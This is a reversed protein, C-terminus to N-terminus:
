RRIELRFFRRENNTRNANSVRHSMGHFSPCIAQVCSIETKRRVLRLRITDNLKGVTSHHIRCRITERRVSVSRDIRKQLVLLKTLLIRSRTWKDFDKEVTERRIVILQEVASLSDASNKDDICFFRDHFKVREFRNHVRLIPSKIKQHCRNLLKSQKLQDLIARFGVSLNTLRQKESQLEFSLRQDVSLYEDFLFSVKSGLNLM